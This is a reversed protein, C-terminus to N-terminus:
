VLQRIVHNPLILTQLHHVWLDVCQGLALAFLRRIFGLRLKVILVPRVPRPAALLLLLQGGLLALLVLLLGLALALQLFVKVFDGFVLGEDFIEFHLLSLDLLHDLILERLLQFGIRSLNLPADEERPALRGGLLVRVSGLGVRGERVLFHLESHALRLGFEIHDALEHLFHLMLLEIAALM